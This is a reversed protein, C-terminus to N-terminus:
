APVILNMLDQGLNDLVTLVQATAQYAQQFQLIASAEQDLSVGSVQDRLSTAQATVQQQMQENNTATQNEQGVNGAIQGFYQLYSLGGITGTTGAPNELAALAIANGNANGSSDVPALQDPTITANLAITSAIGAPNSADYTFLPSGAAAGPDASVTGSELIGNVTDALGQALQNLTGQQQADGLIGALVRDRVDLLGGLQGGTIESTVDNGQADLIHATPLSNPYTPSPASDVAINSSLDYQQNGVVLPTGGALLVTVTGDSQTVTTFNTLQSLNQLASYLQADAGPDPQQSQLRNVNYQQIQAAITNIQSVTSGIQGDIQGASQTLSNDLGQFSQAVSNAADLVNQRATTDSPSNSWASFAQFLNNLAASVGGTGTVDFFSQLTSTSQAQATYFGLAQTQSQVAEEAYPDRSNDLGASMLGGVLGGAIDLPMAELNLSQKAYGPTSANDVNNQIVSLAQELVSLANGASALSATIGSM